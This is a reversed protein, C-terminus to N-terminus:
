PSYGLKPFHFDNGDFNHHYQVGLSLRIALALGGHEGSYNRRAAATSYILVLVPVFISLRGVVYPNLLLCLEHIELGAVASYVCRPVQPVPVHAAARRLLKFGAAGKGHILDM